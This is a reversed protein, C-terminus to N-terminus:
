AALLMFAAEEEDQEAMVRALAADIEQLTFKPATPEERQLVARVQKPTPQAPNANRAAIIRVARDVIDDIRKRDIRVSGRDTFGKGGGGGDSQIVIPPTEDTDFLASDFIIPDFLTGAGADFLASDFVAPDFIGSM